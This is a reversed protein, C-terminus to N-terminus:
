SDLASAWNAMVASRALETEIGWLRALGEIVSPVDRPRARRGNVKAFPGDSETLVRTKDMRSILKRGNKSALMSLNVSFFSGNQQATELHRLPGSYWHLIAIGSFQSGLMSVVDSEAGRSHISVVVDGREDCAQIIRSLVERQLRHTAADTVRYDLGVEGVFRTEGLHEVLDDVQHAHQAVLEPHLGVAVWVNERGAALKCCAQFVFPANTVALVGVGASDAQALEAVPDDYLDIHCHADIYRM